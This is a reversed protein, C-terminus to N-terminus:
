PAKKNQAAQSHAQDQIPSAGGPNKHPCTHGFRTAWNCNMCLIQIGDRPWGLRRLAVLFSNTSTKFGGLEKRHAQGNRAIHDISLFEAITEGCCMCVQGYVALMEGRLKANRRKQAESNRDRNDRQWQKARDLREQRHSQYYKQDYERNTPM